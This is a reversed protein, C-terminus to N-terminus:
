DPDPVEMRRDGHLVRLESGTSPYLLLPGVIRSIAAVVDTVLEYCGKSFGFQCPRDEGLYENINLETWARDRGSLVNASHSCREIGARALATDIEQPTPNRADGSPDFELGQEELWARVEEDVPIVVYIVRM